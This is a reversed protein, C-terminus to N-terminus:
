RPSRATARGTQGADGCDRVSVAVTRALRAGNQAEARFGVNPRPGSCLRGTAGLVSNKSRPLTIRLMRLPVDPLRTFVLTAVGRGTLQVHGQMTLTANGLKFSTAVAPPATGGRAVLYSTGTMASGLLPSAIVMRSLASAAPCRDPAADYVEAPCAERIANLRPHLQRPLRVALSSLNAQSGSGTRLVLSLGAGSRSAGPGVIASLRPTFRLRACGSVAFLASSSAIAGEASDITANVSGPTCNTPNFIFGPRDLNLRVARVRVPVGGFVQPLPDTAISVRLSRPDVTVSGRTVITGLNIPGAVAPVVISLGYPRGGYPGTLFVTGPLTLPQNGAGAVVQTTGIATAAPCNGKSAAPEECPIVQSFDGLLGPPLKVQLKALDGEGDERSVNMVFAGAAGARRTTMGASFGPAFSRPVSCAGAGGAVLFSSGPTAVQGSSAVLRSITTATGCATPNDLSATQGGPFNVKIESLPLQPLSRFAITLQGTAPDLEFRGPLRVTIAENGAILFFGWPIDSQPKALYVKGPLPAALAPSSVSVSGVSAGAPCSGIDFESRNCVGLGAAGAPSLSVGPPLTVTLSTLPPTELALPDASRPLELEVEYGAPSDPETTDPTVSLTPAFQLQDCGTPAPQATSATVSRKPEQWSDLHVVTTLPEGCQSPASIFARPEATSSSCEGGLLTCRQSDHSSATPVGWLTIRAGNMGFLTSMDSITANIGSADQRADLQMIISGLLISAGLTALHGRSPEVNYIPFPATREEAMHTVPEGLAHPNQLPAELALRNGSLVFAIKGVEENAGSGITIENEESACFHATDAVNIVDDRVPTGVPLATGIAYPLQLHTADIVSSVTVQVTEGPEGVTLIDGSLIGATSAVALVSSAGSAAESLVTPPATTIGESGLTTTVGPCIVVFFPEIVGVQSDLPCKTARLQSPTCQPTAQPNGVFGAPLEVELDKMQQISNGLAEKNLTISTTVDPHGGAQTESFSSSLAGVGFSGGDAHAGQVGIMALVTVVLVIAVRAFFAIRPPRDALSM